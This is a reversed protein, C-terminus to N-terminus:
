LSRAQKAFDTRERALAAAYRPDANRVGLRRSAARADGGNDDDNIV